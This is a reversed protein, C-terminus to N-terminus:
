KGLLKDNIWNSFKETEEPYNWHGTELALFLQKAAKITNYAAYM